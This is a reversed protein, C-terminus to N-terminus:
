MSAGKAGRGARRCVSRSAKCSHHTSSSKSYVIDIRTVDVHSLVIRKPKWPKPPAPPKM